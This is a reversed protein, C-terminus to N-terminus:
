QSWSASSPPTVDSSEDWRVGPVEDLPAGSLGGCGREAVVVGVGDDVGVEEVISTLATGLVACAALTHSM